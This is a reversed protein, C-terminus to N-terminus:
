DWELELEEEDANAKAADVAKKKAAKKAAPAAAKVAREVRKAAPVAPALTKPAPAKRLKPQPAAPAKVPKAVAKPRAAPKPTRTAAAAAAAPAAKLAGQPKQAPDPAGAPPEVDSGETADTGAGDAAKAPEAGLSSLIMDLTQSPRGAEARRGATDFAVLEGPAPKPGAIAASFAGTPEVRITKYRGDARVIVQANPSTVGQVRYGGGNPESRVIQLKLRSPLVSFTTGSPTVVIERERAYETTKGRQEFELADGLVAIITQAGMVWVGYGQGRLKIGQPLTTQIPESAHGPLPARGVLLRGSDLELELKQGPVNFLVRADRSALIRADAFALQAESEIGRTVIGTPRALQDGKFVPRDDGNSTIARVYGKVRAVEIQKPLQPIHPRPPPPLEIRNVLAHAAAAGAGGIVVAVALGIFMRHKAAM